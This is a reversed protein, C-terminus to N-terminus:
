ELGTTGDDGLDYGPDDGPRTKDHGAWEGDV